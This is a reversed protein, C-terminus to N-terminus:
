LVFAPNTDVDAARERVHRQFEAAGEVGGFRQGGGIRGLAAHKLPHALHQLAGAHLRLRDARHDVAGGQSGIKNISCFPDAVASTVM